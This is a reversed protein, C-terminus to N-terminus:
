ILIAASFRGSAHGLHLVVRKRNKRPDDGGGEPDGAGGAKSSRDGMSFIGGLTSTARSATASSGQSGQQGSGTNGGTGPDAM